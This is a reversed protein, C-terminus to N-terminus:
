KKKQFWGYEQNCYFLGVFTSGVGLIFVIIWQLVSPEDHTGISKIGGFTFVILFLPGGVLLFPGIYKQVVNVFDETNM